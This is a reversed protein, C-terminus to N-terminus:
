ESGSPGIQSQLEPIWAPVGRAKEENWIELVGLIRDMAEQREAPPLEQVLVELAALASHRDLAQGSKAYWLALKKKTASFPQSGSMFKQLGTPSMGVERSVHRLSTALVSRSVAARLRSVSEQGSVM